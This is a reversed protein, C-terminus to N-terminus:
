SGDGATVVNTGNGLTISANAGTNVTNSGNPNINVYTGALSAVATAVNASNGAADLISAGNQRLATISLSSTAADKNGVTYNFVLSTASSRAADFTAIGGDSLALTPVGGSVSVAESLGLTITVLDGAQFVGQASSALA